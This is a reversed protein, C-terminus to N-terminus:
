AVKSMKRGPSVEESPQKERWTERFEVESVSDPKSTGWADVTWIQLYDGVISDVNYFGGTPSIYHMQVTGPPAWHERVLIIPGAIHLTIEEIHENGECRAKEAEELTDFRRALERKSTYSYRSGPNAVYKGDKNRQLIYKKM